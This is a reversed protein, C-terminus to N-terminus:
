LSDIKSNTIRDIKDGYFQKFAITSFSPRQSNMRNECIIFFFIHANESRVSETPAVKPAKTTKSKKLIRKGVEFAVEDQYTNFINESAYEIATNDMNTNKQIEHELIEQKVEAQENDDLFITDTIGM